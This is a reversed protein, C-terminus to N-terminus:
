ILHIYFPFLFLKFDGEGPSSGPGYSQLDPQRWLYKHLSGQVRFDSRQMMACKESFSIEAITYGQKLMKVNDRDGYYMSCIQYTLLDLEKEIICPSWHFITAIEMKASSIRSIDYPKWDFNNQVWPFWFM